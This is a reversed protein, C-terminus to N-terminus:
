LFFLVVVVAVVMVLCSSDSFWFLPCMVFLTLNCTVLSMRPREELISNIFSRM